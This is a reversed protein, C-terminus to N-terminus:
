TCRVKFSALQSTKGAAKLTKNTWTTIDEETLPKDSKLVKKLTSLSFARFVQWMIATHTYTHTLTHIHAHTHTYLLCVVDALASVIIRVYFPRRAERPLATLMSSALLSAM